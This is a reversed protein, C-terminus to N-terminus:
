EPCKLKRINKRVAPTRRDKPALFVYKKLAQCAKENDKMRIYVGALQYYAEAMQPDLEIAKELEEAAAKYWKRAAKARGYLVRFTPDSPEKQVWGEIFKLAKPIRKKALLKAAFAQAKKMKPSPVGPEGSDEVEEVEEVEAAGADPAPAEEGADAVAPPPVAAGADPKDTGADTAEVVVDEGGETGLGFWKPFFHYAGGVLGGALIGFIVVKLIMGSKRKPQAVRLSDPAPRKAKRDTRVDMTQEPNEEDAPSLLDPPAELEPEEPELAPTEGSPEVEVKALPVSDVAPPALEDESAADEMPSPPVEARRTIGQAFSPKAKQTVEEAVFGDEPFLEEAEGVPPLPEGDRVTEMHAAKDAGRPQASLQTDEAFLDAQDKGDQKMVYVGTDQDDRMARLQAVLEDRERATVVLEDRLRTLEREIQDSQGAFTAEKESVEKLDAKLRETERERQEVMQGSALQVQALEQKLREVEAELEGARASDEESRGSQQEQTGARLQEMEKILSDREVEVAALNNLEQALESIKAEKKELESSLDGQGAAADRAKRLDKEREALDKKASELKRKLGRTEEQDKKLREISAKKEEVSRELARKEKRLEDREREAAEARQRLLPDGKPAPPPTLQSARKLEEQLEAVRREAMLARQTLMKEDGPKGPDGAPKASADATAQQLRKVEDELKRITGSSSEKAAKLDWEFEDREEALQQELEEIRAKLKEVESDAM